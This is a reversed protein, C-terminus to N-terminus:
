GAFPYRGEVFMREVEPLVEARARIIQREIGGKRVHLWLAGIGALVLLIIILISTVGGSSRMALGGAVLGAGLKGKGAAMKAKVGATVAGGDYGPKTASGVITPDTSKTMAAAKIAGGIGDYFTGPKAKSHQEALLPNTRLLHIMMARAPEYTVQAAYAAVVTILVVVFGAVAMGYAAITLV